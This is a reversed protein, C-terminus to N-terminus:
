YIYNNYLEWRLVECDLLVTWTAKPHFKTSFNKELRQVNQDSCSRLCIKGEICKHIGVRLWTKLNLLSFYM